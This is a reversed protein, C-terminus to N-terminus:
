GTVAIQVEDDGANRAATFPAEFVAIGNRDGHNLQRNVVKPATFAINGGDLNISLAQETGDEWDSWFDHTAILEQRPDFSGAPNRGVIEFSNYGEAASLDDIAAIENQLDLTLNAIVAAFGGMTFGAAKVAVPQNADFTFGPVAVDIPDVPLGQFNFAMMPKQGAAFTFGVNGRGGNLEWLLGGRYAYITASPIATSLLTYTVSTAPVITELFGCAELLPGWEPATGAAGSGKMPVGFEFQAFKRGQIPKFPSLSNSSVDNQDIVENPHSPNLDQCRVADAVATPTPGVGYTAEKKALIGFRRTLLSM